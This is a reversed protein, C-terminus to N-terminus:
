VWNRIGNSRLLNAQKFNIQFMYLLYRGGRLSAVFKHQGMQARSLVRKRAVYDIRGLFGPSDSPWAVQDM